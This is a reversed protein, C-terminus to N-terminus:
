EAIQEYEINPLTRADKKDHDLVEYTRTRMIIYSASMTPRSFDKRVFLPRSVYTLNLGGADPIFLGSTLRSLDPKGTEPDTLARKGAQKSVGAITSELDQVPNGDKDRKNKIAAYCKAHLARFEAYGYRVDPAEDEAVGIFVEKGDRDIVSAENERAKEIIRENYREVAPCKEGMYKVSDTDWYLLKDWGVTLQLKFLALRSLSATWLGWLYPYANKQANYIEEDTAAELNKEWNTSDSEIGEDTITIDYTDRIQKQDCVGFYTNICIKSFMYEPTDKETNEKTHFDGLVVDKFTQPLPALRFVVAEIIEVSEYKYAIKFRKFDNSDMYVNVWDGGLVRGNDYGWVGNKSTIKDCKSVSITPEPCEFRIDFNNIKLKAIWGYAGTRTLQQLSKFDKTWSHPTGKPYPELLMQSPHASKIDYSNCNYFTKGAYHRNAHTSGGGSTKYALRLQSRNLILEQMTRRTKRTKEKLIEENMHGRVRGTNTYPISVQTYHGEQKLAEIAEYLGQVDYVIYRYEEDTLHTDPSHYATHDIDGVAKKHKCNKTAGALSKSFLKFSDRFTIGNPFDMLLPKTRATFLAKPQDDGECWVHRLIQSLWYYEYGLNHVYFVLRKEPTVGFGEILLECIEIFDEVYRVVCNVGDVNIQISYIWGDPAEGDAEVPVCTEIDLTCTLDIFCKRGYKRYDFPHKNFHSDLASYFEQPTESVILDDIVRM